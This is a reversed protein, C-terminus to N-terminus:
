FIFEARLLFCDTVMTRPSEQVCVCRYKGYWKGSHCSDDTPLAPRMFIRLMLKHLPLPFVQLDMDLASFDGSNGHQSFFYDSTLVFQDLGNGGM